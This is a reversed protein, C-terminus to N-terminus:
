GCIRARREKMSISYHGPPLSIRFQGQEDTTFSAVTATENQITFACNSLPASNAVGERTPGPHAPSITVVGNVGSGSASPNQAESCSSMALFLPLIMRIGDRKM